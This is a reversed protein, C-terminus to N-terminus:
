LGRSDGVVVVIVGGGDCWRLLGMAMEAVFVCMQWTGAFM